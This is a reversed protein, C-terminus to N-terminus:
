VLKNIFLRTLPSLAGGARREVQVHALVGGEAWQSWENRGSQEAAM